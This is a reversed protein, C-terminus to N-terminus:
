SLVITVTESRWVPAIAAALYTGAVAATQARDRPRGSPFCLTLHLLPGRYAYVAAASVTGAFWLGGTAVLLPGVLSRPRQEWGVLGCGALVSGTLLDPIWTAPDGFGVGVAEAVVGAAGLVPWLARQASRM